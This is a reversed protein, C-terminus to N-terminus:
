SMIINIFFSLKRKKGTKLRKSIKLNEKETELGVTIEIDGYTLPIFLKDQLQDEAYNDIHDCGDKLKVIYTDEGEGGKIVNSGPGANIFNAEANGIITDKKNSGTVTVVETYPPTSLDLYQGKGSKSLDISLPVCDVVYRDALFGMDKIKLQVGDRTLIVLHRRFDHIAPSFWNRIKVLHTGCYAILLDHDKRGCVVHAHSVNLWLTDSLKDYAFNDIITNGGHTGLYYLDHGEGGTVHAGEPGLFFTDNGAMGNLIYFYNKLRFDIVGTAGPDKCEDPLVKSFNGQYAIFTNNEKNGTYSGYLSNKDDKFKDIVQASAIPIFGWMKATQETWKLTQSQGIGLIIDSLGSCKFSKSKTEYFGDEGPIDSITVTFSGDNHLKFSLAGGYSSFLGDTFDATKCDSSVNFYLRPNAFKNLLEDYHKKRENLQKLSRLLGGTFFDVLGEGLGKFFALVKEGTGHAKMLETKIDIYFDDIAMRILSLAWVVPEFEPGLVDVVLNAVTTGIDLILHVSSLAIDEVNGKKVAKKLDALDEAIFYADFALGVYPIDGLLRESDREALKLLKSTAADAVKNLGVKAAGKSVGKLLAKEGVKEIVENVRTLSGFSHVAQVTSLAGKEIDGRQFSNIAGFITMVTGHIGFATGVKSHVSARKSDRAFKEQEGGYRISSLSEPDLETKATYVKDKNHVEHLDFKLEGGELKVSNEDVTVKKGRLSCKSDRKCPGSNKNLIDSIAASAKKKAARIDSQAAARKVGRQNSQDAAMVQNSPTSGINNSNQFGGAVNMGVQAAGPHAASASASSTTPSTSTPGSSTSSTKAGGAANSATLTGVPAFEISYSLIRGQNGKAWIKSAETGAPKTGRLQAPYETESLVQSLKISKIKNNIFRELQDHMITDLAMTRGSPRYDEWNAGPVQLEKIDGTTDIAVGSDAEIKKKWFELQKEPMAAAEVINTLLIFDEVVRKVRVDNLEPIPVTPDNILNSYTPQSDMSNKLNELMFKAVKVQKKRTLEKDEVKGKGKGKKEGKIQDLTHFVHEKYQTGRDRAEVDPPYKESPDPIEYFIQFSGLKAKLLKFEVIRGGVEIKFKKAGWMRDKEIHNYAQLVRCVDILRTSKEDINPNSSTLDVVTKDSDREAFLPARAEKMADILALAKTELKEVSKSFKQREAEIRKKGKQLKQQDTEQKELNKLEKDLRKGEDNIMQRTIGYYKGQKVGRKDKVMNQNDRLYLVDTAIGGYEANLKHSPWQGIEKVLETAAKNLRAKVKADSVGSLDMTHPPNVMKKNVEAAIKKLRHFSHYHHSLTIIM